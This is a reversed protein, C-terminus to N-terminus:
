VERSVLVAKVKVPYICRNDGPYGQAVFVAWVFHLCELMAQIVKWQDGRTTHEPQLCVVTLNISQQLWVSCLLFCCARLLCLLVEAWPVNVPICVKSTMIMM